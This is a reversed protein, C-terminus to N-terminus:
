ALQSKERALLALHKEMLRNAAMPDKLVEMLMMVSTIKTMRGIGTMQRRLRGFRGFTERIKMRLRPTKAHTADM